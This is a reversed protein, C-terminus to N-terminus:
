RPSDIASLSEFNDPLAIDLSQPPGQPLPLRSFEDEIGSILEAVGIGPVLVRSMAWTLRGYYGDPSKYEYNNQYPKCASLCIWSIEKGKDGSGSIRSAANGTGASGSATGPVTGAAYAEVSSVLGPVTGSATGEVPDQPIVFVDATGRVVVTDQGDGFGRTADGSHCADIVVLVHGDAGAADAIDSLWLYLEDDSIHNEGEYKGASYEKLADYPVCAEDLGDEEDGDLDTVQQGHGSFHVYVRDGQGLCSQLSYFANEIATKTAGDNELCIINEKLFGNRELMAVVLSVDRDGHIRSWGSEEPYDGIGVVIAYNKPAAGSVAGGYLLAAGLVLINFILNRM